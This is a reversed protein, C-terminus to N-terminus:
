ADTHRGRQLAQRGWKGMYVIGSWLTTLATLYILLTLLVQPLPIVGKAFVVSFVLLIQLLTNIKSILLPEAKVPEILYHYSIAGSVIVVDRLIVLIALWVPLDGIWALSLFTGVLLLKDALPDLMGGLRTTWGFHKALLGDVGDSAGAVLILLLAETYRRQLLLWIIPAVLLMRLVTILNPIDRTKLAVPLTINRHNAYTRTFYCLTM